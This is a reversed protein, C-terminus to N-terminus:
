NFVLETKDMNVKSIWSWKFSDLTILKKYSKYFESINAQKASENRYFVCVYYRSNDPNIFIKPTYEKSELFLKWSEADKRNAAVKTVIYYGQRFSSLANLSPTQLAHMKSSTNFEDNSSALSNVDESPIMSGSEGAKLVWSDKLYNIKRLRKYARFVDDIDKDFYIYVYYLQNNPDTFARPTHGNRTLFQEWKKAYNSNAFINTVVYYGDELDSVGRRTSEIVEARIEEISKTSGSELIDGETILDKVVIETKKPQVKEIIPKDTDVVEVVTITEEPESDEIVVEEPNTLIEGPTLEIDTIPNTKLEKLRVEEYFSKSVETKFATFFLHFMDSQTSYRLTTRTQNNALVQKPINMEALDFGLTNKSNPNRNTVLNDNLTISSNFFNQKRRFSSELITFNNTNGNLIACKDKGLKNDGELAAVMMSAKIDGEENTKFDSFDIDILKNRLSSFGNYTTIYVPNSADTEYVIFLFWGGAGGGAVYGEAAKVNAVTYQGNIKKANKLNETVDAFCVYPSTEKLKNNKYGDFLIEGTINQYTGEPTKLKVTKFRGQRKTGKLITKPNEAQRKTGNDYPYIGAWYLTASVIKAQNNPITLSAQSSSFTNADADVDVYKMKIQDNLVNLDNFPKTSHKSLINNGVIVADGNVYFQQHMKFDVEQSFLLSKFLLLFFLCFQAKM